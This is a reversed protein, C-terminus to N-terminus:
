IKTLNLVLIFLYQLLSYYTGSSIFITSTSTQNVENSCTIVSTQSAGVIHLESVLKPVGDIRSNSILIATVNWNIM